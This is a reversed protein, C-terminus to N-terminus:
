IYQLKLKKCSGVKRNKNISLLQMRRQIRLFWWWYKGFYNSSHCICGICLYICIYHVPILNQQLCKWSVSNYPLFVGAWPSTGSVLAITVTVRRVMQQTQVSLPTDEAPFNNWRCEFSLQQIEDLTIWSKTFGLSTIKIWIKWSGM